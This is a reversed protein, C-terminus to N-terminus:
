SPVGGGRISVPERLLRSIFSTLTIGFRVILPLALVPIVCAAVYGETLPPLGFSAAAWALTVNRNGSVLGITGAVQLELGSFVLASLVCLGFNIAVAAAFMKEFQLQNLTLQARVGQSTALGVIILGIVAIGTAARQDPLVWTLRHRFRLAAYAVLAATGIIGVLRVALAGM